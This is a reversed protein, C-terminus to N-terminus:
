SLVHNGGIKYEVDMLADIFTKNHSVIIFTIDKKLKTILIALENISDLDLHTTPEDLLVIDPNFIISRIISVKMKEGSSLKLANNNMLHYIELIKCYEWIKDDYELLDLKRIKLPYAINEYVTRNFIVTEQSNYTIEGNVKLTGQYDLLGAMAKFLTTKGSGNKGSVITIINKKFTFDNFSLRITKLDVTLNKIEIM